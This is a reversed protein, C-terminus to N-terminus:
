SYETRITVTQAVTCGHDLLVAEVGHYFMDYFIGADSGVSELFVSISSQDCYIIRSTHFYRHTMLDFLGLLDCLLSDSTLDGGITVDPGFRITYLTGRKAFRYGAGFLFRIHLDDTFAFLPAGDSLLPPLFKQHFLMRYACMLRSVAYHCSATTGNGGFQDMYAEYMGLPLLLAGTHESFIDMAYVDERSKLSGAREFFLDMGILSGSAIRSGYKVLMHMCGLTDPTYITTRSNILICDLNEAGRVSLNFFYYRMRSSLFVLLGEENMGSVAPLLIAYDSTACEHLFNWMTEDTIRVPYGHPACDPVLFPIRVCYRYAASVDRMYNGLYDIDAPLSPLGGAGSCKGSSPNDMCLQGYDFPYRWAPAFRIPFNMPHEDESASLVSIDNEDTTILPLDSDATEGIVCETDTSVCASDDSLSPLDSVNVMDPLADEYVFPVYDVDRFDAQDLLAIDDPLVFGDDTDADPDTIDAASESAQVSSDGPDALGFMDDYDHQFCTTSGGNDAVFPCTADRNEVATGQEAASTSEVSRVSEKMASEQSSVFAEAMQLLDMSRPIGTSRKKKRPHGSGSRGDDKSAPHPNAQKGEYVPEYAHHMLKICADAFRVGDDDAKMSTIDTDWLLRLLAVLRNQVMERNVVSEDYSSLDLRSSIYGAASENFQDRDTRLSVAEADNFLYDYVYNYFRIVPYRGFSNARPAIREVSVFGDESGNVYIRTAPTSPDMFYRIVMRELPERSNRYFPSLKCMSCAYTPIDFSHYAKRRCLNGCTSTRVSPCSQKREKIWDEYHEDSLSDSADSFLTGGTVTMYTSYYFLVKNKDYDLTKCMLYFFDELESGTGIMGALYYLCTHKTADMDNRLLQSSLDKLQEDM